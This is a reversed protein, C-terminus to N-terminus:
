LIVNIYYLWQLIFMGLVYEHLLHFHPLHLTTTRSSTPFHGFHPSSLLLNFALRGHGLVKKPLQLHHLQIGRPHPRSLKHPLVKLQHNHHHLFSILLYIHFVIRPRDKSVSVSLPPLLVKDVFDRRELNLPSANPTDESTWCPFVRKQQPVTPVHGVNATFAPNIFSYHSM